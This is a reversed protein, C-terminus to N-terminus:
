IHVGTSGPADPRTALRARVVEALRAVGTRLADENAQTFSLRMGSSARGDALFQYGPAFSVGARLADPLLERTDAIGPLEVWVQYGGDPPVFDAIGSLQEELADTLADCRARLTRRLRSLHRDYAGSRVLDDLAAQLPLAGSLDSAHRLALLGELARGRTAMLGLRAGPFLSKSFSFLHIVAGSDDLAALSPVPRGRFRLDVECTDEVVPVASARAIRLLERRHELSTTTGLPNHFTPITYFLKVDPRALVPELAALDVGDPRMPVPVARLGLALLAALVNSYTPEEVAVADGPETFLRLALTIGQSAGQCLVLEDASVDVTAQRLRGALAERLGAHGQPGGYQLLKGGDDSLVRTLARRFDAVPYLEPDPILAHMSVGDDGSAYRPRTREFGLLREVATSLVPEFKPPLEVPPAAGACVFTGRGVTSTVLGEASLEDYALAVTDRNVEIDGALVRIPPLREGPALTGVAIQSRIQDAIQRYVPDGGPTGRPELRIRM